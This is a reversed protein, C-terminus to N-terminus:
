GESTCTVSGSEQQHLNHQLHLDHQQEGAGAWRQQRLDHQQEGVQWGAQRQNLSGGSEWGSEQGRGRHLDHQPEGAQRSGATCTAGSGEQGKQSTIPVLAPVPNEKMHVPHYVKEQICEAGGSKFIEKRM